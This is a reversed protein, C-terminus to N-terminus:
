TACRLTIATIKDLDPLSPLDFTVPPLLLTSTFILFPVLRDPGVILGGWLTAAFVLFLILIGFNYM